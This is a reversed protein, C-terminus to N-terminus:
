LRGDIARAGAVAGALFAAVVVPFSEAAAGRERERADLTRGIIRAAAGAAFGIAVAGLAGLDEGAADGANLAHLPPAGRALQPHRVALAGGLRRIEAPDISECVGAAAARGLEGALQAVVAGSDSCGASEAAAAPMLEIELRDFVRTAYCAIAHEEEPRPDTEGAFHIGVATASGSRLWLAGSDGGASIEENQPNKKNLPVIIFGDIGVRGVEYTIFYRGMGDVRGRTVQTTRGSKVLTDGIRPDELADPVIGLDIVAPDARRSGSLLAIAADGDRDLLMRELSAVTDRPQRGGDFPGPQVIPDGPLADAAGALVHWNSLIAPNGSRTDRVIMGLTGATGRLHSVSIGPQLPDFRGTRRTAKAAKRRSGPHYDGQLVDVPYGLIEVPFVEAAELASRPLKEKVHLRVALKRTAKGNRYKFGIDIGTVNGRHAYRALAEHYASEITVGDDKKGAAM